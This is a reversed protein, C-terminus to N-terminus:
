ADHHVQGPNGVRTHHVFANGSWRRACFLFRVPRLGCGFRPGKLELQDMLIYLLPTDAAATVTQTANNVRLTYQPM